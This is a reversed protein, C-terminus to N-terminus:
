VLGPFLVLMLICFGYLPIVMHFAFQIKWEKMREQMRRQKQSEKNSGVNSQIENSEGGSSGIQITGDDQTFNPSKDGNRALFRDSIVLQPSKPLNKLDAKEEPMLYENGGSTSGEVEQYRNQDPILLDIENEQLAAALLPHQIEIRKMKLYTLVPVVYIMLFGSLSATYGLISGIKPYFLAFTLPVTSICINMIRFNKDSIHTTKFILNMLLVRQFHNVLPYSCSLQVYIMARVIVAPTEDYTFMNLFNQQMYGEDPSGQSREYVPKFSSGAFAIYGLTGVVAYCTFVMFYGIFVNRINKEPEKARAIIPLSCQHIFYGACLIGALNSFQSNFLLLDQTDGAGPQWLKGETASKGPTIVTEYHTNSMSVFSYSIVFIIMSTVCIAGLGGMKMFVTLDKKMSLSVLKIFEFLAVYSASLSSFHYYPATNPDVYEIDMKFVKNCLVVLLPYGSQVVVVFYVTIAGFILVIPAIM